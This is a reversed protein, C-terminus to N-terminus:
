RWAEMLRSAEARMRLEVEWGEQRIRTDLYSLFRVVTMFSATLWMAAPWGVLQMSRHLEYDDLLLAQLVYFVVALGAALAAGYCGVVLALVTLRGTAPGHLMVSRRSITVVRPDASRVPNKELLIIENLFPATARRLLVAGFLLFLLAESGSYPSDRDITFALLCAFLVGRLCGHHWLLLPLRQVVERTAQRIGPRELFLAQGLYVTAIASALPAELTVLMGMTWAYRVYQWIQEPDWPADREGELMWGVLLYNAAAWPLLGILMALLLPGIHIRFVHLALDFTDLVGRERVVIRTKDLQM